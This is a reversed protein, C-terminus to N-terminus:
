FFLVSSFLASDHCSIGLMYLHALYCHVLVHLFLHLSFKYYSSGFLSMNLLQLFMLCPCYMFVISCGIIVCGSMDLTTVTASFVPSYFQLLLLVSLVYTYLAMAAAM